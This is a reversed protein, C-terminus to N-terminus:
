HHAEAKPIDQELFSLYADAGSAIDHSSAGKKADSARVPEAADYAALEAAMDSPLIPPKPTAPPSFTKVVGVHADKAQLLWTLHRIDHLVAVRVCVVAAPKYGRL